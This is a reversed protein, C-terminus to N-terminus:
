HRAYEVVITGVVGGYGCFNIDWSSEQWGFVRFNQECFKIGTRYNTIHMIINQLYVEYM